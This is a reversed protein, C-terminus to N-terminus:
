LRLGTTLCLGPNHVHMYLLTCTYVHISTCHQALHPKSMSAGVICQTVPIMVLM